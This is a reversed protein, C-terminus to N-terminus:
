VQSDVNSLHNYVYLNIHVFLGVQTVSHSTQNKNDKKAWNSRPLKFVSETLLQCHFIGASPEFVSETLKQLAPYKRKRSVLGAIVLLQKTAFHKTGFASVINRLIIKLDHQILFNILFFKLSSLQCTPSDGGMSCSSDQHIPSLWRKILADRPFRLLVKSATAVARPRPHGFFPLHNSTPLQYLLVLTPYSHILTPGIKFTYLLWLCVISTWTTDLRIM